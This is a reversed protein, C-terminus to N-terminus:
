KLPHSGSFDWVFWLARWLCWYFTMNMNGLLILGSLQNLIWLATTRTANQCPLDHIFSSPIHGALWSTLKGMKLLILSSSASRSRAENKKLIWAKQVPLSHFMFTRWTFFESLSSTNKAQQYFPFLFTSLCNKLRKITLNEANSLWPFVATLAAM